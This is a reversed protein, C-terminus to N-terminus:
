LFKQGIRSGFGGVDQFEACLDFCRSSLLPQKRNNEGIKGM